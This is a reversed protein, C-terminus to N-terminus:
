FFDGDYYGYSEVVELCCVVYHLEIEINLEAIKLKRIEKIKKRAESERLIMNRGYPYIYKEIESKYKELIQKVQGTTYIDLYEKARPIKKYIETVLKIIETKEMRKLEKNLERLGM